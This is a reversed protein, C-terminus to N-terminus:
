LYKTDLNVQIVSANSSKGLHIEIWDLAEFESLFSGRYLVAFPGVRADPHWETRKAHNEEYPISVTHRKLKPTTM